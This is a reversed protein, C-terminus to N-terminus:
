SRPESEEIRRLLLSALALYELTKIPDKQEVIDHAKPNRIGIMAGQFIHMFGQQEDKDSKSKLENLQLAPKKVSFVTTMLSAGDLDNKGSKEQVKKNVLKFADFIAQSYHGNQVLKGCLNVIDPHLNQFFKMLQPPIGEIKISSLDLQIEPNEKPILSKKRYLAAKLYDEITQVDEYHIAEITLEFQWTGNPSWSGGSSFYLNGKYILKSLRQFALPELNLLEQAESSSIRANEPNSIFKKAAIKAFETFNRLDEESGECLYIGLLTLHSEDDKHYYRQGVSILSMGLQEAIKYLDGNKRFDVAIRFSKPWEASIKFNQYVLNLLQKQKATLSDKLNKLFVEFDDM